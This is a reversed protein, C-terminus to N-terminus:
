QKALKATREPQGTKIAAHLATMAQQDVASVARAISQKTCISFQEKAHLSRGNPADCVQQAAGVIRRYLQGVGQPNALNLDGYTVTKKTPESDSFRDTAHVATSAVALCATAFTALLLPRVDVPKRTSTNMTNMTM